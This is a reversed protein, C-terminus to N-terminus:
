LDVTGWSFESFDGQFGFATLVVSEGTTKRFRKKNSGFFFISGVPDPNLCPWLSNEPNKFLAM